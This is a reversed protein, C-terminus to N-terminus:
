SSSGPDEHGRLEFFDQTLAFCFAEITERETEHARAQRLTRPSDNLWTECRARLGEICDLIELEEHQIRSSRACPREVLQREMTQCRELIRTVQAEGTQGEVLTLELEMFAKM